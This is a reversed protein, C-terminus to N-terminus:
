TDPLGHHSIYFGAAVQGRLVPLWIAHRGRFADCGRQLKCFGTDQILGKIEKVAAASRTALGRVESASRAPFRLWQHAQDLGGFPVSAIPIPAECGFHM